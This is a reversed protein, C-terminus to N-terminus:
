SVTSPTRQWPRSGQVVQNLTLHEVLQALLADKIKNAATGQSLLYKVVVWPGKCTSKKFFKLYTFVACM